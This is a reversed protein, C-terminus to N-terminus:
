EETAGQREKMKNLAKEKLGALAEQVKNKVENEEPEGVQLNPPPCLPECPKGKAWLLMNEYTTAGCIHMRTRKNFFFPVGGCRDNDLQRMFDLHKREYWVEFVRM